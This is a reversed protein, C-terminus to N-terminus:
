EVKPKAAIGPARTSTPHPKLLLAMLYDDRFDGPALQMAARRIGEIQFGHKKYLAVAPTNELYVFLEIRSIFPHRRAWSLGVHMMADGLGAGRYERAIDIGLRGTHRMRLFPFARISLDAVVQPSEAGAADIPIALLRLDGESNMAEHISSSTRKEVGTMEEPLHLTFARENAIEKSLAICGAVDDM